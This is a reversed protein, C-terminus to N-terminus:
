GYLHVGLRLARELARQRLTETRWPGCVSSGRGRDCFEVRPTTRKRNLRRM